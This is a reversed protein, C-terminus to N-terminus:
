RWNYAWSNQFIKLQRIINPMETRTAKQFECRTSLGRLLSPLQIGTTDSSHINLFERNNDAIYPGLSWYSWEGSRRQMQSFSCLYPTYAFFSTLRILIRSRRINVITFAKELSSKSSAIPATVDNGTANCSCCCADIEVLTVLSATLYFNPSVESPKHSHSNSSQYYLVM